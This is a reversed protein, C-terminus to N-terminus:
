GGIKENLENLVSIWGNVIGFWNENKKKISSNSVVASIEGLYEQQLIRCNSDIAEFIKRIEKIPHGRGSVQIEELEPVDIGKELMKTRIYNCAFSLRSVDQTTLVRIESFKPFNKNDVVIVTCKESYGGDKTIIDIQCIGNELALIRGDANVIAVSEDTSKILVSREEANTPQVTFELQHEEGSLLEVESECSIGTVKQPVDLSGNLTVSKNNEAEVYLEFLYSAGSDLPYENPNIAELDFFIDNSLSLMKEKQLELAYDVGSRVCRSRDAQTIKGVRANIQPVSLGILKFIISTINYAEHKATFRVGANFGYRDAEIIFDSIEPKKLNITELEGNHLATGFTRYFGLLPDARMEASVTFTGGGTVTDHNVTWSGASSLNSWTETAAINAYSGSANHEYVSQDNFTVTLKRDYLKCPDGANKYQLQASFTTKWTSISTKTQIHLRFEVKNNASREMEFPIYFDSM